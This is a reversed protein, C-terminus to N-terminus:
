DSRVGGGSIVDVVPGALVTRKFASDVGWNATTVRRVNVDRRLAGEAAELADDLAARDPSGIIMLDIDAPVGGPQEHYRAAWSGYIFAEDIGDVPALAERLVTLPGFTLALLEALPPYIQHDTVVHVLRTNGRRTSTVLGAEEMRQVERMVTATSVGVEAAIETLSQESQPKLLVEAMVAGQARSRLLPLLLPSPSKM